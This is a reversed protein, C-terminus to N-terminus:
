LAEEAQKDGNRIRELLVDPSVLTEGQAKSFM